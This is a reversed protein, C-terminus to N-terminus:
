AQADNRGFVELTYGTEGPMWCVALTQGGRLRVGLPQITEPEAGANTYIARGSICSWSVAHDEGRRNAQCRTAALAALWIPAYESSQAAGSTEARRRGVALARRVVLGTEGSRAPAAEGSDGHVRRPLREEQHRGLTRARKASGTGPRQVWANITSSEIQSM